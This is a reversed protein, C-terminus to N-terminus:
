THSKRAKKKEQAKKRKSLASLNRPSPAQGPGSQERGIEGSRGINSKEDVEICEKIM